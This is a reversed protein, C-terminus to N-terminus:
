PCWPVSCRTQAGTRDLYKSKSNGVTESGVSAMHGRELGARMGDSCARRRYGDIGWGPSPREMRLWAM